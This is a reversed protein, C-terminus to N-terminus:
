FLDYITGASLHWIILDTHRLNIAIKSKNISMVASLTSAAGEGEGGEM